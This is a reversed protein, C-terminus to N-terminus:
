RLFDLLTPQLVRAGAQLGAELAVQSLQLESIVQTLDVDEAKSILGETFVKGDELQNRSLELRQLRGGMAGQLNNIQEHTLDVTAILDNVTQGDNALLADRLQVLTDFVDTGGKFLDYGNQNVTVSAHPGIQVQFTDLNGRYDVRTDDADRAFPPDEDVTRTGAFVYRGDHVTNGLDILRTLLSDVSQALVKRSSADQTGNAGQVALSKAGDLVQAMEALASDSANMFATAKDVNDLYKQADFTDRRYRLSQKAAVPDDSVRNLKKGTALQEQYTALRALTKQNTRLVSSNLGLNTVRDM